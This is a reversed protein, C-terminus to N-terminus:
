QMCTTTVPIPKFTARILLKPHYDNNTKFFPFIKEYPEPHTLIKAKKIASLVRAKCALNYVGRRGV